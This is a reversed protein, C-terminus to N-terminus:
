AVRRVVVDDILGDCTPCLEVFLQTSLDIVRGAVHPGNDCVTAVVSRGAHSVVVDFNPGPWRWALMAAGRSGCPPYGYNSAIGTAIITGQAGPDNDSRAVAGPRSPSTPPPAVPRPTSPVASPRATPIPTAVVRRMRVVNPEAGSCGSALVAAILAITLARAM